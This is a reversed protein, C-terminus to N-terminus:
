WHRPPLFHENQFHAIWKRFMNETDVCDAFGAQRIKITSLITPPPPHDFGYGCILDAYIFSQGVFEDFRRPARLDFRRVIAEWTSQRKPIETALSMPRRSGVAMGFADALVPWVGEMTFVEGNTVNFVQNGLAPTTAAWYLARALLDADVAETLFPAGGPFDLALGDYRQIAAYVGLAPIANMNSGFTEGFVIQPRMITWHWSQGHQKSRLYDEQLWYFNEHPHRPARERGPLDMPAVHAGYAKTGQLVSIHRLGSAARALPDLLNVLMELNRTMQDHELWGSLLGPKEFLAAYVVHTVDHMQSFVKECQVRDTLDVSLLEVGRLRQPVRRSVGRVHWGPQRAFHQAAAFGVVGSTGAVLVTRREM